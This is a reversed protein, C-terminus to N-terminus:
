LPKRSFCAKQYLLPVPREAPEGLTRDVLNNLIQFLEIEQESSSDFSNRLDFMVVVRESRDNKVLPVFASVLAPFEDILVASTFIICSRADIARRLNHYSMLDVPRIRSHDGSSLATPWLVGKPQDVNYIAFSTCGLESAMAKRLDDLPEQRPRAPKPTGDGVRIVSSRSPLFSASKPSEGTVWGVIDM